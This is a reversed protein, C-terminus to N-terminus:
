LLSLDTEEQTKVQNKKELKEILSKYKESYAKTEAENKAPDNSFSHAKFDSQARKLIIEWNQQALEKDLPKSPFGVIKTDVKDAFDLNCIFEVAENLVIAKEIKGITDLKATPNIIRYNGDKDKENPNLGLTSMLLMMSSNFDIRLKLINLMIDQHAGQQSEKKAIEEVTAQPLFGSILMLMYYDARREHQFREEDMEPYVDAAQTSNLDTIHNKVFLVVEDATLAEAMTKAAGMMGFPVPTLKARNKEDKLAELALSMKQKRVAENTQKMGDNTEQIMSPLKETGDMIRQIQGCSSLMLIIMTSITLTTIIRM